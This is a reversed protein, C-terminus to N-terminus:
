RGRRRDLADSSSATSCSPPSCMATLVAPPPMALRVSLLSPGCGSASKWRTMSSLRIAVNLRLRSWACCMDLVLGLVALAAHDDVGRRDGRELPLDALDRVGRRLGADGPHRERHRAVEAAEADPDDRNRRAQELVPRVCPMGSSNASTSVFSAANGFRMPRGSSYPPQHHRDDLVGISFPEHMRSSAPWRKAGFYPTSAHGILYGYTAVDGRRRFREPCHHAVDGSHTLPRRLVDASLPQVLAAPGSSPAFKPPVFERPLFVHFVTAVTVSQTGPLSNANMILAPPMLM